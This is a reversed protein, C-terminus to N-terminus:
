LPLEVFDPEIAPCFVSKISILIDFDRGTTAEIARNRQVMCPMISAVYECSLQQDDIRFSVPPETICPM